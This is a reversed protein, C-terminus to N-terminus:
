FTDIGKVFDEEKVEELIGSKALYHKVLGEDENVEAKFYNIKINSIRKLNNCLLEVEERGYSETCAKTSVSIDCLGKKNELKVERDYFSGSGELIYLVKGYDRENVMLRMDLSGKIGSM